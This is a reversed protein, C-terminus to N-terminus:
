ELVQVTKMFIYVHLLQDVSVLLMNNKAQSPSLGQQQHASLFAQVQTNSYFCAFM